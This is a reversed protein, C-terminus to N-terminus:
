LVAWLRALDFGERPTEVALGLEASYMPPRDPDRTADACYAAFSDGEDSHVIEVDDAVRKVKVAELAEPQALVAAASIALVVTVKAGASGLVACLCLCLYMWVRVCVCL